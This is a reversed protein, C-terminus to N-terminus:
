TLFLHWPNMLHITCPYERLIQVAHEWFTLAPPLLLPPSSCPPQAGTPHPLIHPFSCLASPKSSPLLQSSCSGGARSKSNGPGFCGSGHAAMDLQGQVRCGCGAGLHSWAVQAARGARAKTVDFHMQLLGQFDPRPCGDM